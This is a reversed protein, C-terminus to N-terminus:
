RAAMARSIFNKKYENVDEKFPAFAEGQRSEDHVKSIIDLMEM